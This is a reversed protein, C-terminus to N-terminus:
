GTARGLLEGALELSTETTTGGDLLRAIERRREAPPLSRIAVSTRAGRVSKEVLLHATAAAAVAAQHTVCLVQRHRGLAALRAAVRASAHGSLGADVEDFVMMGAGTRDAALSRLALMVRSLEGGSAVKRLPRLAEGPNASFLMEVGETGDATAHLGNGLDMGVSVPPLAVELRANPLSLDRLIELLAKEFKPAVRQRQIRLEACARALRDVADACARDLADMAVERRALADREAKLADRRAAADEVTPGYKRLARRIAALRDDVETLRAPDATMRETERAISRAADDLLAIAERVQAALPTLSPDHRAALAIARAAQGSLGCAGAGDAAETLAALAEGCHRALEEAHMLRAREAELRELEGSQLALSELEEVQFALFDLRQEADRAAEHLDERERRLRALERYALSVTERAPEAGAFADFLQRQAAPQLLEQQAGQTHMEVLRPGLEALQAATALRGNIAARSRGNANLERRLVLLEPDDGELANEALWAQAGPSRAIDFEAEVHARDAGSRVQEAGGRAGLLLALSELLVSKGAGTEGTVACFGSDLELRLSEILAVNSIQLHRLM